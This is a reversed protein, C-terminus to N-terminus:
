HQCLEADKSIEEEVMDQKGRGALIETEGVVLVRNVTVPIEM